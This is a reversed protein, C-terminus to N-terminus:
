APASARGLGEVTLESEIAARIAALSDKRARLKTAAHAAANLGALETAEALSTARLEEANVVRDLFGAGRAEEPGYMHATVVARSFAAPQLRQRALEIAFWPMTLGIKVENLGLRFPGETGIRLDAALLVFSGAAVAHGNCAALVPTKFSLIRETLTAGLRLMEIVREVDGSAFVKLDFGASFYGERGTLVVMADDREARDLAEHLAQLMPISFANVKGDDMTITAIPGDLEYTTLDSMTM